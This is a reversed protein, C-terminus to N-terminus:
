PYTWLPSFGSGSVWTHDDEVDKVGGTWNSILGPPGPQQNDWLRGRSGVRWPWLRLIPHRSSRLLKRVPKGSIQGERWNMRCGAAITYKIFCLDSCKEGQSLVRENSGMARNIMGNRGRSTAGTYREIDEGALTGM